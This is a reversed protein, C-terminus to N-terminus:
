STTEAEKLPVVRVKLSFTAVTSMLLSASPLPVARITTFFFYSSDEGLSFGIGGTRLQAIQFLRAPKRSRFCPEGKKAGPGHYLLARAWELILLSPLWLKQSPVESPVTM